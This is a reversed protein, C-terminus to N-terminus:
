AEARPFHTINFTLSNEPYEINVSTLALIIILVITSAILSYGEHHLAAPGDLVLWVFIYLLRVLNLAFVLAKPSDVTVERNHYLLRIAVFIVLIARLIFIVVVIADSVIVEYWKSSLIIALYGAGSSWLVILLATGFVVDCGSFRTRKLTNLTLTLIMMVTLEYAINIVYFTAFDSGDFKIGAIAYTLAMVNILLKYFSLGIDQNKVIYFLTLGTGIVAFAVIAKSCKVIIDLESHSM